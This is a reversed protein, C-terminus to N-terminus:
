NFVTELIWNPSLLIKESKKIRLNIYYIKIFIRKINILLIYIEGTKVFFLSLIVNNFPPTKNMREYNIIAEIYRKLYRKLLNRIIWYHPIKNKINSRANYLWQQRFSNKSYKTNFLLNNKYSKPCILLM